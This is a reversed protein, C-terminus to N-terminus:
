MQLAPTTTVSLPAAPNPQTLHRAPPLNLFADMPKLQLLQTGALSM